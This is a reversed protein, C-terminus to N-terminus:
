SQRIRDALARAEEAAEALSEADGQHVLFQVRRQTEQIDNLQRRESIFSLELADCLEDVDSDIDDLTDDEAIDPRTFLESLDDEREQKENEM